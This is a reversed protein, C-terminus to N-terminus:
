RIHHGRTRVAVLASECCHYLHVSQEGAHDLDYLFHVCVCTIGDTVFVSTGRHRSAPSSKPHKSHLLALSRSAPECVRPELAASRGLDRSRGVDCSHLLPYHSLDM